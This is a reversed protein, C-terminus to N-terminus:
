FLIIELNQFFSYTVKITILSNPCHKTDKLLDCFSTFTFLSNLLNLKNLLNSSNFVYHNIIFSPTQILFSKDLSLLNSLVETVSSQVGESKQESDVIKSLIKFFCYISSISWLKRLSNKWKKKLENKFSDSLEWWNLFFTLCQSLNERLTM